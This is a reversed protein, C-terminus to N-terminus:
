LTEYINTWISILSNTAIKFAQLNLANQCIAMTAATVEIFDMMTFDKMSCFM